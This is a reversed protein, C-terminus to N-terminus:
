SPDRENNRSWEAIELRITEVIDRRIQSQAGTSLRSRAPYHSYRLHNVYLSGDPNSARITRPADPFYRAIEGRQVNKGQGAFVGTFDNVVAPVSIGLKAAIYVRSGGMYECVVNDTRERLEPPLELPQRRILRGASLMVPNKIGERRISEELRTYHGTRKNFLEVYRCECLDRVLEYREHWWPLRGDWRKAIEPLYRPSALNFISRADLTLLIVRPRLGM